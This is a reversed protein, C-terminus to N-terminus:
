PLFIHNRNMHSPALVSQSDVSNGVLQRVKM